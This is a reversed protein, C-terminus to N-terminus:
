GTCNPAYFPELVVTSLTGKYKFLGDRVEVTVWMLLKEEPARDLFTLEYTGEGAEGLDKVQILYTMGEQSEARSIEVKGYWPPEVELYLANLFERKVVVRIYLTRAGERPTIWLRIKDFSRTIVVYFHGSFNARLSEDRGVWSTPNESDTYSVKSLHPELTMPVQSAITLIVVIIAVGLVYLHGKSLGGM